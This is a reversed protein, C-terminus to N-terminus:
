IDDCRRGNHTGGIDGEVLARHVSAQNATIEIESIAGAQVEAFQNLNLNLNYASHVAIVVLSGLSGQDEPVVVFGCEIADEASAPVEFPCSDAEFIPVYTGMSDAPENTYVPDPLAIETLVLTEIASPAAEAQSTPLCCGILLLALNLLTLLQKKFM